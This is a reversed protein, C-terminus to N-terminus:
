RKRRVSRNQFKTASRKMRISANRRQFKRVSKKPHVMLRNIHPSVFKKIHLKAFKRRKMGVFM